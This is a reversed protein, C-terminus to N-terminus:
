IVKKTFFKYDPGLTRALGFDAIRIDGHKNILINSIKLDRHMIENRHLYEVAKLLKLM